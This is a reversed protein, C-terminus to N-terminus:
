VASEPLGFLRDLEDPPGAPPGPLDVAPVPDDARARALAAQSAHAPGPSPGGSTLEAESVALTEALAARLRADVRAIDILGGELRQYHAKLRTRAASPVSLRRALAAVMADVRMRRARRLGLLAPEGEVLAAMVEVLEPTAAPVPADQLLRDLMLRLDDADDGARELYPVPDPREGRARRVAFEEFLRLTRDDM